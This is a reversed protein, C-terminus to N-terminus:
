KREGTLIALFRNTEKQADLAEQAIAISRKQLEISERSLALGEDVKPMASDQTGVAKRQLRVSYFLVVLMIVVFALGGFLVVTRTDM